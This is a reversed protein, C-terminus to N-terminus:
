NQTDAALLGVTIRHTWGASRWWIIGNRRMLVGEIRKPTDRQEWARPLFHSGLCRQHIGHPGARGESWRERQLVDLCRVFFSLLHSGSLQDLSGAAHLATCPLGLDIPHTCGFYVHCTTAPSYNDTDCCTNHMSFVITVTIHQYYAPWPKKISAGLQDPILFDVLFILEWQFLTLYLSLSLSLKQPYFHQRLLCVMLKCCDSLM